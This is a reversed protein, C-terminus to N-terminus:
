TVFKAALNALQNQVDHSLFTKHGTRKVSTSLYDLLAGDKSIWAVLVLISGCNVPGDKDSSGRFVSNLKVLYLITDLLRHSIARMKSIYEEAVDQM